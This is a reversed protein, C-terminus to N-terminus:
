GFVEALSAPGARESLVDISDLALNTQRRFTNVFQVVAAIQGQGSDFKPYFARLCLLNKM